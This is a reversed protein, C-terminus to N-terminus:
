GKIFLLCFNILYNRFFKFFKKEHGQEIKKCSVAYLRSKKELSFSFLYSFVLRFYFNSSLDVSQFMKMYRQEVPNNSRSSDRPIYIMSTEKIKYINHHGIIAVHQRKKVLVIYYGETFKIFGSFFM